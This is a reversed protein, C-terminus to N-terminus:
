GGVVRPGAVPARGEGARGAVVARHMAYGWAALALMPGWLWFPFILLLQVTDKGPGAAEIAFGVGAATFLVSVVSAPIVALGVPVPHGGVGALIRPFREGWPLVLGLTLVGGTLMGLGLLLGLVRVSPDADFVEAAGGFAPWPTLWSARAVVYPLACLAAVITIAVRHRLVFAAVGGAPVAASAASVLSWALLGAAAAVHALSLGAETLAAGYVSLLRPFLADADHAVVAYVSVAGVIVALLIGLRPRRLVTLVIFVVIGILVTLSFSYGALPIVDGPTAAALLAAATLAAARVARPAARSAPPAVPMGPAARRAGLEAAAAVGAVALAVLAATVAVALEVGPGLRGLLSVPLGGLFGPVLMRLLDAVAVFSAALATALLVLLRTRTTM